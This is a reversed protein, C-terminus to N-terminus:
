VGKLLAKILMRELASGKLLAKIFMRELASGQCSIRLLKTQQNHNFDGLVLSQLSPPSREVSEPQLVGGAGFSPIVFVEATSM